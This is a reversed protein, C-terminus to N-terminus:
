ASTAQVSLRKLSTTCRTRAKGTSHTAERVRLLFSSINLVARLNTKVPQTGPNTKHWTISAKVQLGADELADRLHSIYRDSTFVYGSGNPKLIRTWEQTWWHFLSIFEEKTVNDWQGFNRDQNKHNQLIIVNDSSINYPPDTIILDICESEVEEVLEYFDAHYIHVNEPLVLLLRPIQEKFQKVSLGLESAKSLLLKQQDPTYKAVLMHHRISLNELRNSFGISEALWKYNAVTQYEFGTMEMAQKYKEDGYTKEGHNMWDGIWWAVSGDAAEIFKGDAVWQEYTLAEAPLYGKKQFADPLLSLETNTQAVLELAM